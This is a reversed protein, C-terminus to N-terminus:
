KVWSRRSAPGVLGGTRSHGVVLEIVGAWGPHPQRDHRALLATLSDPVRDEPPMRRLLDYAKAWNGGLLADVAREYDALHADTLELHESLPPLLETVVLPTDLGFPKVKAVRRCRFLGRREGAVCKRWVAASV